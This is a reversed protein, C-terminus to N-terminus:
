DKLWGYIHRIIDIGCVTTMILASLSASTFLYGQGFLAASNQYILMLIACDMGATTITQSEQNGSIFLCYLRYLPFAVVAMYIANRMVSIRAVTLLPPIVILIITLITQKQMLIMSDPKRTRGMPFNIHGSIRLIIHIIFDMYFFFIAAIDVLTTIEGTYYRLAVFSIGMANLITDENYVKNKDKIISTISPIVFLLAVVALAIHGVYGKGHFLSIGGVFIMTIFLLSKICYCVRIISIIYNTTM